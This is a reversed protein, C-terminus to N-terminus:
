VFGDYLQWTKWCALWFFGALIEPIFVQAIGWERGPGPLNINLPHRPLKDWLFVVFNNHKKKKKPPTGLPEHSEAV